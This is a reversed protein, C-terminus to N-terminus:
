GILQIIFHFIATVGIALGLGSILGTLTRLWNTSVRWGNKQTIGDILMPAQLIIGLWLPLGNFLFLPFFLLGTLMALCRACIPMPSGKIHHCREPKRHCPVTLFFSYLKNKLHATLDVVIGEAVLIVTVTVGDILAVRFVNQYTSVTSGIM